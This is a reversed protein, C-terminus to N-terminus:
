ADSGIVAPARPLGPLLEAAGAGCALAILLLVPLTVALGGPLTTVILSRLRAMM